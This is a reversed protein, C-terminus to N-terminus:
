EGAHAEFRESSVEAALAEMPPLWRPRYPEPQNALYITACLKFPHYMTYLKNCNLCNEAIHTSLM